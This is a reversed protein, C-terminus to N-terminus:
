CRRCGGAVVLMVEFQPDHVYDPNKRSARKPQEGLGHESVHLVAERVAAKTPEYGAELREDLTRRVIGPDREEADRIQRAEHIQKRTLGLDNSNPVVEQNHQNDGARAVEGREQAADYEDALGPWPRAPPRAPRGPAGQYLARRQSVIM